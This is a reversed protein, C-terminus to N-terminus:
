FSFGNGTNAVAKGAFFPPHSISFFLSHFSDTAREAEKGSGAM